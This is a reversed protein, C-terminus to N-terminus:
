AEKKRLTNVVKIKDATYKSAEIIEFSYHSFKFKDGKKVFGDVFEQCFGGVTSYDTEFEGKYDILEFFDDINMMGDVILTRKNERVVELEIEDTEDFIDGVIEELIDEMTIIGESGGYEDKVVAIHIKKKKFDELLDLVQYNRPIVIPSYLLSEIDIKENSLLKRSLQKIPLIGIINDITDKYVPVRAYELIEGQKILENIDDEIDIAFVNVRPTMIEFAQIDILDIAGRVMEAEDAQIEGNEVIEDVMEDLVEESIAPRKNRKKFLKSVLNFLKSIPFTVIFFLYSFFAVPYAFNLALSYNFRKAIAKPMFEGCIIIVGTFILAGIVAGNDPNYSTGLIAVLSSALINVLNNGFLITSISYEYNSALKLALKARKSYKAAKELRLKDVIGYVMDAASFFASFVVLIAIIIYYYWYM